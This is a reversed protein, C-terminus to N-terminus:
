VPCCVTVSRHHAADPRLALTAVLIAYETMGQASEDHLLTNILTM